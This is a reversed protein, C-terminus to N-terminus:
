CKGLYFRGKAEREDPYVSFSIAKNKFEIIGENTEDELFDEENFKNSAIVESRFVNSSHELYFTDCEGSYIQMSKTVEESIKEKMKQKRDTSDKERAWSYILEKISISAGDFETQKNLIAHLVKWSIFNSQGEGVFEITNEGTGIIPIYKSAAFYISVSVFLFMIFFIVITAIFWTLTSSIQAKRSNIMVGTM